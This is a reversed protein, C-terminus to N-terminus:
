SRVSSLNAGPSDNAASPKIFASAVAICALTKVSLTSFGGNHAFEMSANAVSLFTVSALISFRM